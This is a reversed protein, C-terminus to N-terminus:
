VSIRIPDRPPGAHPDRGRRPKQLLNPIQQPIGGGAPGEDNILDPDENREGMTGLTDLLAYYPEGTQPTSGKGVTPSEKEETTARKKSATCRSAVKQPNTTPAHNEPIPSEGTNSITQRRTGESTQGQKSPMPQSAVKKLNTAAAHNEPRPSEDKRPNPEGRNNSITQQPGDRTGTKGARSM